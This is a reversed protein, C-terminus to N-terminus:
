NQSANANQRENETRKQRDHRNKLTLALTKPIASPPTKFACINLRACLYMFHVFTPNLV